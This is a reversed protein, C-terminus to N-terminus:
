LNAIEFTIFLFLLKCWCLPYFTSPLRLPLPLTAYISVFIKNMNATMNFVKEIELEIALSRHSQAWGEALYKLQPQLEQQQHPM